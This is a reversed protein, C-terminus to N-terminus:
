IKQVPNFPNQESKLLGLVGKPLAHSVTTTGADLAREVSSKGQQIGYFLLKSLKRRDIPELRTYQIEFNKRELIQDWTRTPQQWDLSKIKSRDKAEYYSAEGSFPDL